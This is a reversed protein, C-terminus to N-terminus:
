LMDNVYKRPLWIVVLLVWSVLILIISIPFAFVLFNLFNIRIEPYNDDIFGKLIINPTTGVLSGFGGISASYSCALLFATHLNRGQDSVTIEDLVEEKQSEKNVIKISNKRNRREFKLSDKREIEMKEIEIMESSVIKIYIINLVFM